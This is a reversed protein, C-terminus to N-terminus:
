NVMYIYAYRSIPQCWWGEAMGSALKSSNRYILQSLCHLQPVLCHAGPCVKSNSVWKTAEMPDMKAVRCPVYADAHLLLWDTLRPLFARTPPRRKACSWCSSTSHTLRFTYLGSGTTTSPIFSFQVSKNQSTRWGSPRSSIPGSNRNSFNTTM